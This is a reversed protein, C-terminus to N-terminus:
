LFILGLILAILLSPLLNGLPIKKIGLLHLGIGIILLGGTASIENIIAQSLITKASTSLLTILGQYILVPLFSFLVGIGMASAFPIASVGDLVSKAFLISHNNNIGDEISGVIAMAGICYILSTTVFGEVFRGDKSKVKTKVWGGLDDLRKELHIMEGTIGGIVLSFIVILMNQAKISMQLGILLVSLGIAIMAINKIREPISKNFYVGILAGVIIAASNVLTGLM